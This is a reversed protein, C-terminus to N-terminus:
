NRPLSKLWHNLKQIHLYRNNNNNALRVTKASYEVNSTFKWAITDDINTVMPM